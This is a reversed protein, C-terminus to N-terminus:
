TFKLFIFVRVFHKMFNTFVNKFFLFDNWVKFINVMIERFHLEWSLGDLLFVPM